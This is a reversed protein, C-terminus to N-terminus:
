LTFWGKVSETKVVEAEKEPDNEKEDDDLSYDPIIAMLM